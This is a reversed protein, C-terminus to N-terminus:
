KNCQDQANNKMKFEQGEDKRDHTGRKYFRHIDYLFVEPSKFVGSTQM